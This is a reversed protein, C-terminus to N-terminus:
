KKRYKQMLAFIINQVLSFQLIYVVTNRSNVNESLLLMYYSFISNQQLLSFKLDVLMFHFLLFIYYQKMDVTEKEQFSSM